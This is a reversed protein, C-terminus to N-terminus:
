VLSTGIVGEASSSNQTTGILAEPPGAGHHLRIASFPPGWRVRDPSPMDVQWSHDSSAPQGEAVTHM